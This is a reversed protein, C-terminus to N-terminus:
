PVTPLSSFSEGKGKRALGSLWIDMAFRYVCAAMLGLSWLCLDAVENLSYDGLPLTQKPVPIERVIPADQWIM